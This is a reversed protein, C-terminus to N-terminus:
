LEEEIQHHHHPVQLLDHGQRLHDQRLWPLQPGAHSPLFFGGGGPWDAQPTCPYINASIIFM